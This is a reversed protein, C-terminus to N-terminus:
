DFVQLERNAKRLKGTLDLCLNQLLKIKIAPQTETLQEFDELKLLLCETERDAVVMASRPQGDILAMEGFAVGASVTALRKKADADVTILVSAKGRTLLYLEGARDGANIINEGANYSRKKLLPRLANLEDDTLKNAIAFGELPVTKEIFNANARELLRDECWELAVDLDDFALFEDEFRDGLKLRLVRRLSPARDARVFLLKKGLQSLEVLLQYL